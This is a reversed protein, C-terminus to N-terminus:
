SCSATVFRALRIPRIGTPQTSCDLDIIVGESYLKEALDPPDLTQLLNKCDKLIYRFVGMLEHYATVQRVLPTVDLSLMENGFFYPVEYLSSRDPNVTKLSVEYINRPLEM